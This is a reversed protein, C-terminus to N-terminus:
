RPEEGGNGGTELESRAQQLGLSREVDHVGRFGPEIWAVTDEAGADRLGRGGRAPQQDPLRAAVPPDDAGDTGGRAVRGAADFWLMGVPGYQTLLEKVQNRAYELYKSLDAEPNPAGHFGRQNYRAPMQPHHWDPLGYFFGLRIGAEKCAEALEAMPDRKFPTAKVINFDSQATNFMSFGEHHKATIVIYKMGAEKATKVWQRADFQTPNFQAAFKEYDPKSMGVQLQIWEHYTTKRGWQGAPVSYLGWHIFMGFRAERFWDLREDGGDGARAPLVVSSAAVLSVVVLNLCRM